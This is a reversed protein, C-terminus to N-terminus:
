NHRAYNPYNPYNPVVPATYANYAPVNSSLTNCIPVNSVIVRATGDNCRIYRVEGQGSADGAIRGSLDNGPFVTRIYDTMPISVIYEQRQAAVNAGSCPDIASITQKETGSVDMTQSIVSDYNEALSACQLPDATVQGTLFQPPQLVTQVPSARCEVAARVLADNYCYGKRAQRGPNLLPCQKALVWNEFMQPQERYMRCVGDDFTIYQTHPDPNNGVGGYQGGINPYVAYEGTASSKFFVVVGAAAIVLVASLIATAVRKDNM